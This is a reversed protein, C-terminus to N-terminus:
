GDSVSGKGDVDLLALIQNGELEQDVVRGFDLSSQFNTGGGGDVVPSIFPVVDSNMYDHLPSTSAIVPESKNDLRIRMARAFGFFSSREQGLPLM